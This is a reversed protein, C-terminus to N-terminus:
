RRAARAGDGSHNTKALGGLASESEPGKLVQAAPGGEGFSLLALGGGPESARPRVMLPWGPPAGVSALENRNPSM